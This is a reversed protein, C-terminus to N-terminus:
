LESVQFPIVPIDEKYKSNDLVFFHEWELGREKVANKMENASAESLQPNRSVILVISDKRPSPIQTTACIVFMRADETKHLLKWVETTETDWMVLQTGFQTDKIGNAEINEVITRRIPGRIATEVQYNIHLEWDGCDAEIFTMYSGDWNDWSDTHTRWWKGRHETIDMTMPPNIYSICDQPSSDNDKNSLVCKTVVCQSFAALQRTPYEDLVRVSCINADEPIEMHSCEVIQRKMRESNKDSCEMLAKLGARSEPDLLCAILAPGCRFLMCGLATKKLLIFSIIIVSVCILAIIIAIPM